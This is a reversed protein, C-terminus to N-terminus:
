RREKWENQREEKRLKGRHEEVVSGEDTLQSLPNRFIKCLSGGPKITCEAPIKISFQPFSLFSEIYGTYRGAELSYLDM